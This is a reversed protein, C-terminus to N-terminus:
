KITGWSVGKKCNVKNNIKLPITKEM